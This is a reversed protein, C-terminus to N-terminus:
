SHPQPISSGTYIAPAGPIGFLSSTALNVESASYGTVQVPQGNRKYAFGIHLADHVGDIEPEGLSYLLGSRLHLGGNVAKILGLDSRRSHDQGKIERRLTPKGLRMEILDLIVDEPVQDPETQDQQIIGELLLSHRGNDYKYHVVRADRLASKMSEPIHTTYNKIEDEKFNLQGQEDAIKGTIDDINVGLLRQVLGNIYKQHIDAYTAGQTALEVYHDFLSIIRGAEFTMERLKDQKATEGLFRSKEIPPHRINLLFLYNATNADFVALAQNFQALRQAIDSESMSTSTRLRYEIVDPSTYFLFTVPDRGYNPHTRLHERLKMVAEHQDMTYIRHEGQVILDKSDIAHIRTPARWEIALRSEKRFKDLEESDTLYTVKRKKDEPWPHDEKTFLLKFKRGRVIRSKRASTQSEVSDVTTSKGGRTPGGVGIVHYKSIEGELDSALKAMKSEYGM